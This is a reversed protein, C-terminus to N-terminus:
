YTFCCHTHTQTVQTNLMCTLLTMLDITVQYGRRMSAHDFSDFLGKHSWPFKPPHLDGVDAAVSLELAVGLGVASATLAGVAGYL